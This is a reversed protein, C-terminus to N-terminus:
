NQCNQSHSLQLEAADPLFTSAPPPFFFHWCQLCLWVRLLKLPVLQWLLAAQLDPRPSQRRRSTHEAWNQTQPLSPDAQCKEIQLQTIIGGRAEQGNKQLVLIACMRENSNFCNSNLRLHCQALKHLRQFLRTLHHRETSKRAIAPVWFIHKIRLRSLSTPLPLIHWSYLPVSTLSKYHLNRKCTNEFLSILRSAVPILKMIICHICLKTILLWIFIWISLYIHIYHPKKVHSFLIM